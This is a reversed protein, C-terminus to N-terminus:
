CPPWQGAILCMIANVVQSEILFLLPGLWWLEDNIVVSFFGLGVSAIGMGGYIHWRDIAACGASLMPTEMFVSGVAVLLAGILFFNPQRPRPEVVSWDPEATQPPVWPTTM